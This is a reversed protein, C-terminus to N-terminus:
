AEEKYPELKGAQWLEWIRMYTEKFRKPRIVCGETDIVDMCTIGGFAKQQFELVYAGKQTMSAPVTIWPNGPSQTQWKTTVTVPFPLKYKQM